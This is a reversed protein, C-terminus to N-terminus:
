GSSWLQAGTEWTVSQCFHGPFYSLLKVLFHFLLSVPGWGEARRHRTWPQGITPKPAIQLRMHNVGICEELTAWTLETRHFLVLSTLLPKNFTACFYVLLQELIVLVKICCVLILEHFSGKSHFGFLHWFISEPKSEKRMKNKKKEWISKLPSTGKAHSHLLHWIIANGMNRGRQGECGIYKIHIEGYKWPHM